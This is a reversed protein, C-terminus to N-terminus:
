FMKPSFLTGEEHKDKLLFNKLVQLKKGNCLFMSKKHKLLFDAAKLKTVIGGTAFANNPTVEAELEEKTISHVVKYMKANPNIQPNEEYYGDIDSLIVLLSANFYHAVKASLQDNDGFVGM